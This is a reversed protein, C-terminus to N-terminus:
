RKVLEALLAGQAPPVAAADAPDVPLSEDYGEITEAVCEALVRPDYGGELVFLTRGGCYTEAVERILRGLQRAASPAVGLDGVPDGAVFDYGASIVLLGPRQARAVGRLAAIWLAVFAETAIGSAAIPLNALM